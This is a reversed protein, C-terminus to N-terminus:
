GDVMLDAGLYKLLSHRPIRITNGIKLIEIQDSRVLAYAKGHGIGLFEALQPVTLIPPIEQTTYTNM